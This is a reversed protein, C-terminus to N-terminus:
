RAPLCIPSFNPIKKDNFEEKVIIIGIDYGDKTLSPHQDAPDKRLTSIIYAKSADVKKATKSDASGVYVFIDNFDDIFIEEDNKYRGYIDLEPEDDNPDHYPIQQNEAVIKIGTKRNFKCLYM